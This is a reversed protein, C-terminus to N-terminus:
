NTTSNNWLNIQSLENDDDYEYVTVKDKDDNFEFVIKYQHGSVNEEYEYLKETNTTATGTINRDITSKSFDFGSNYEFSLNKDTLEYVKLVATEDTSKFEYKISKNTNNVNANTNKSDENNTNTTNTSNSTVKNSNTDGNITKNNIQMFAFVGGVVIIAVIIIGVIKKM